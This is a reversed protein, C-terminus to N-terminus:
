DRKTWLMMSVLGLTLLATMGAGTNCGGSPSGRTPLENDGPDEDGPDDTGPDDTGPDDTGPDDTGPDDTAAIYTVAYVSLHNTTFTALGRECKVGTQQQTTGDEAVHIVGVRSDVENTKLTYPLGITLKGTTEFDELKANNVFLSIDYVERVTEDGRLTEQQETTLEERRADDEKTIVVEVTAQNGASAILDKMADTNLTVEGVNSAIKINKVESDAVTRLDSVPITVRVENIDIPQGSVDLPQDIKIAITSETGNTEAAEIAATIIAETISGPAITVTAVGTSVNGEVEVPLIVAGEDDIDPTEPDDTGPDDTGPDDTGPDDTGPDDTGPDDTGPDDTGPDDTGPDTTAAIYTVAYVSLHNTTFTALGRECKV